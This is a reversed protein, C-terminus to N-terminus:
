MIGEGCERQIDLSYHKLTTCSDTHLDQKTKGESKNHDTQAQLPENMVNLELILKHDPDQQLAFARFVRHAGHHHTVHKLPLTHGPVFLPSSSLSNFITLTDRAAPVVVLLNERWM